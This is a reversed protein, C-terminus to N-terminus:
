GVSSLGLSRPLLHTLGHGITKIISSSRSVIGDYRRNNSHYFSRLMIGRSDDAYFNSVDDCCKHLSSTLKISQINSPKTM